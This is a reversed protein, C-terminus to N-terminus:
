VEGEAPDEPPSAFLGAILAAREPMRDLVVHEHEAHAGDGVAGLGDLTATHPSTLNGDSAGGVQADEIELGLDSAVLRAREWLRRNRPTMELPPRGFEGEVSLSLRDATPELGRIAREVKAADEATAVRAEIEAMAEPAVVNPRMGGDITGVNVTVGREADNLEFLREIQRSAELIASAGGEPNLGAHSAVGTVKLTFRGIGKRGTKLQGHPGYSPEMVFARAAGGALRVTHRRSDPSGIEEDANLFIVPRCPMEVGFEANARLAYLMQVLGGKMDFVGPGHLCGDREEVPMRRLTGLSWVTDFHGLLLQAPRDGGDPHIALLHDCGEAGPLQEVEFGLGTLEARLMERVGLLAAADLSPSEAQALAVLLQEM